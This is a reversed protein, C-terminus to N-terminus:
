NTWNAWYLTMVNEELEDCELTDAMKVSYNRTNNVIDEIIVWAVISWHARVMQRYLVISICGNM